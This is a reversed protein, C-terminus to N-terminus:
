FRYYKTCDKAGVGKVNQFDEKTAKNLSIM